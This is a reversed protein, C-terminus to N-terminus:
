PATAADRQDARPSMEVHREDALGAAFTVLLLIPPLVYFALEIRGYIRTLTEAPGLGLWGSTAIVFGASAAAFVAWLAATTAAFSRDWSVRRIFVWVLVASASAMVVRAGLALLPVAVPTVEGTTVLQVTSTLDGIAVGVFSASAVCAVGLLAASRDPRSRHLFGWAVTAWGGAMLILGALPVLISGVNAYFLGSETPTVDAGLAGPPGLLLRGVAVGVLGWFLLPAEVRVTPRHILVAAPLLVVLHRSLLALFGTLDTPRTGPSALLDVGISILTAAVFVWALRPTERVFRTVPEPLRLPDVVGIDNM